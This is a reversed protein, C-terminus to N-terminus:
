DRAVGLDVTVHRALHAVLRSLGGRLADFGFSRELTAENMYLARNVELQLAHVGDRPRGYHRTIYGGAYPDNRRVSLGEAALAEELRRLLVPSCTTGHADGLVADTRRSPAMSAQPMSHCDVLLCAGFRQTAETIATALAAHFPQWTAAIRAQAEAFTLKSRYIPEGGAVVRAITGLGAGVRVSATNVWDPLADEFMGPDLEWPERNADCFARPFTAAVMTAGHEAAAAFLEDVYCDESLRLQLPDLRAAAVFSAPYARGSHPSAFVLPVAPGTPRTVHVASPQSEALDM